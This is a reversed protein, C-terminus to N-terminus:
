NGYKWRVLQLSMLLPNRNNLSRDKRLPLNSIFLLTSCEGRLRYIPHEFGLWSLGLDYFCTTVAGSSFAWCYTHTDSTRPSTGHWLLHPMSFFGWQENAMLVSCQDFNAARWQCHHLRWILSFNELPFFFWLCVFYIALIFPSNKVMLYIKLWIYCLNKKIKKLYFALCHSFTNSM